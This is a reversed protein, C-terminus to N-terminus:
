SKTLSESLYENMWPDGRHFKTSFWETSESYSTQIFLKCVYTHVCSPCFMMISLLGFPSRGSSNFNCGYREPSLRKGNENIQPPPGDQTSFSSANTNFLIHENQSLYHQPSQKAMRALHILERQLLPLNAQFM